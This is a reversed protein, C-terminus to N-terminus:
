DLRLLPMPRVEAEVPGNPTLVNVIEGPRAAENRLMAAAIPGYDPSITSSTVTGVERQGSSLVSQGALVPEECLLGMWTKNTHGRSYIRMLVEQGTYCGKKYSVHRAVFAPGMEPPLTKTTIDAGFAPIGAELRATNYANWSVKPAVASLKKIAKKETSPVWLDWGGMGTRDSRLCFIETDGLRSPGADLSPLPMMAALTATARPGQFSLLKWESTLDEVTVDETIVMQEIRGRVASTTETPITLLFKDRVSWLDVVSLIQGTPECLCFAGSAGLDFRRTDNTAQGQLWGKRDEGSLSLISIPLSDLLGCSERLLDYDREEASIQTVQVPAILIESM